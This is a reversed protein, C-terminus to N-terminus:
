RPYNDELRFTSYMLECELNAFLSEVIANEYADGRSGMCLRAGLVIVELGLCLPNM